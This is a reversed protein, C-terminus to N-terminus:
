KNGPRADSLRARETTVERCGEHRKWTRGNQKTIPDFERITVLRDGKVIPKECSSCLGHDKNATTVKKYPYYGPNKPAPM